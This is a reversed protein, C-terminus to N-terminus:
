RSITVNENPCCVGNRIDKETLNYEKLINIPIPSHQSLLLNGIKTLTETNIKEQQYRQEMSDIKNFIDRGKCVKTFDIKDGSNTKLITSTSKFFILTDVPFVNCHNKILWNRM